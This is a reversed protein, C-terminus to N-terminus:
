FNKMQFHNMNAMELFRSSIDKRFRERMSKKNRFLLPLSNSRNRIRKAISMLSQSHEMSLLFILLRRNTKDKPGLCLLTEKRILSMLTLVKSCYFSLLMLRQSSLQTFSQLRAMTILWIQTGEM